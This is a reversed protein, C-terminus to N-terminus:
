TQRDADITKSDIVAGKGLGYRGHRDSRVASGNAADVITRITESLAHALSEVSIREIAPEADAGLM